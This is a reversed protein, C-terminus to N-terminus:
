DVHILWTSRYRKLQGAQLRSWYSGLERKVVPFLIYLGIINAIAM